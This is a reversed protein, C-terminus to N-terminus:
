RLYTYYAFSFMHSVTERISVITYANQLNLRAYDFFFPDEISGIPNNSNNPHAWPNNNNPNNTNPNNSKLKYHEAICYSHRQQPHAEQVRTIFEKLKSSDIM